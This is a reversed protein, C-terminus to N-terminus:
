GERFPNRIRVGSIAAGDQLDESYLVAAGAAVAAHVILSDWFSIGRLRQIDIAAIVDRETFRYVRAQGFLETQRQALAMEIGFKRTAVNYYEQLVQVSVVALDEARCEGWLELAKAQKAPDDSDSAYVLVNSDFFCLGGIGAPM